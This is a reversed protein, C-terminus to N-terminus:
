LSSVDRPYINFKRFSSEPRLSQKFARLGEIGLDQEWNIFNYNQSKFYSSMAFVTYRFLDPHSYSTKIHSVNVYDDALVKYLVFAELQKNLFLCLSHIGIHEAMMLARDIVAGELRENDNRYISSQWVHIANILMMKSPFNDMPIHAIDLVTEQAEMDKEFHQVARRLQYMKNGELKTNKESSVIYEAANPDDVILLTEPEEISDITYQPLSYLEQPLSNAQQYAFLTRIADDVNTRGLLTLLPVKGMSLYSSKIVLNGGLRSAELDDFADWWTMLTGFAWDAYPPFQANFEDFFQKDELTVKSFTPFEAVM